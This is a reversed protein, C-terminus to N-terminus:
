GLSTSAIGISVIRPPDPRRSSPAGCRRGRRSPRTRGRRRMTARERAVAEEGLVHHQHPEEDRRPAVRPAPRTEAVGSVSSLHAHPM